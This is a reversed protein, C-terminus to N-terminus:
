NRENLKCLLRGLRCFPLSFFVCTKLNNGKVKNEFADVALLLRSEAEVERNLRQHEMVNKRELQMRDMKPKILEKETEKIETLSREKNTLMKKAAERKTIYVMTGAAEEVM